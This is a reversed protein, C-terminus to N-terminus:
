IISHIMITDRIIVIVYARFAFHTTLNKLFM